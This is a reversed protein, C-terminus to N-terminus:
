LKIKKPKKFFEKNSTKIDVPCNDIIIVSRSDSIHEDEAKNDIWLVLLKPNRIFSEHHSAYVFFHHMLIGEFQSMLDIDNVRGVFNQYSYQPLGHFLYEILEHNGIISDFGRTENQKRCLESMTNIKGLISLNWSFRTDAEEETSQPPLWDWKAMFRFDGIRNNYVINYIEDM